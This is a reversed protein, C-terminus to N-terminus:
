QCRSLYERRPHVRHPRSPNPPHSSPRQQNRRGRRPRDPPRTPLHRNLCDAWSRRSRRTSSHIRASHIRAFPIRGSPFHLPLPCGSQWARRVPPLRCRRQRRQLGRHPPTIRFVGILGPTRIAAAERRSESPRAPRHFLRDSRLRRRGPDPIPGRREFDWSAFDWSAFGRSAFDWGELGRNEPPDRKRLDQIPGWLAERALRRRRNAARNAARKAPHHFQLRLFCRQAPFWHRPLPRLRPRTPGFRHTPPPKPGARNAVIKERPLRCRQHVPRTPSAPRTAQPRRGRLRSALRVPETM